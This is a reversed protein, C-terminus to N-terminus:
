KHLQEEFNTDQEVAIDLRECVFEAVIRESMSNWRHTIDLNEEVIAMDFSFKEGNKLNTFFEELKEFSFKDFKNAIEGNKDIYEGNEDAQDKIKSLNINKEVNLPKVILPQLCYFENNQKNQKDSFELIDNLLAEVQTKEGRYERQYSPVKFEYDLLDQITKLEM